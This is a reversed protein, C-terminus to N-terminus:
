QTRNLSDSYIRTSIGLIGKIRLFDDMTFRGGKIKEAVFWNAQKEGGPFTINLCLKKIDAKPIDSDRMVILRPSGVVDKELQAIEEPPIDSLQITVAYSEHSMGKHMAVVLVVGLLVPLLGGRLSNM